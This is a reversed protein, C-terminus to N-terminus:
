GTPITVRFVSGVGEKSSVSVSGGHLETLSKVLALGLGTGGHRRTTSSDAQSFPDFIRDIIAPAIGVGTDRVDFTVGSVGPEHRVALCASGRAM